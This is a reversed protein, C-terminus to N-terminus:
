KGVEFLRITTMATVSAGVDICHVVVGNLDRGVFSIVLTSVLPLSDQASTRMFTFTTSNVTVDSAQQSGGERNINRQYEQLIGQENGM